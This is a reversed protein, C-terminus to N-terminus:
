LAEIISWFVLILYHLPGIATVFTYLILLSEEISSKHNDIPLHTMKLFFTYM